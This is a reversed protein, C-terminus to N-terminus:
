TVTEQRKDVIPSVQTPHAVPAVYFLTWKCVCRPVRGVSGLHMGPYWGNAYPGKDM